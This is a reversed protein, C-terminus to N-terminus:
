GFNAFLEKYAFFLKLLEKEIGSPLSIFIKKFFKSIYFDKLFEKKISNVYYNLPDEELLSRAVLEGSRLAYYIGEGTAPNTLKTADGVRLLIRENHINGLNASDVEKNISPFGISKELIKSKTNEIVTDFLIYPNKLYKVHGVIGINATDSSIPFIWSYGYPNLNKRYIMTFKPNKLKCVSVIAIANKKSYNFGRADIVTKDKIKNIDSQKEIITIGFEKAISRLNKDFILRDVIYAFPKKFSFNLINNDVDFICENVSNIPVDGLFNKYKKIVKRSLGGGCPKRRNPSREYIVINKFGEKALFIGTSCGSPGGGVISISM